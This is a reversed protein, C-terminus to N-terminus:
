VWTAASAAMQEPGRYVPGFGVIKMSSGHRVFGLKGDDQVGIDDTRSFQNLCVFRQRMLADLACEHVKRLQAYGTAPFCM